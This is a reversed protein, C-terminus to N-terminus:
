PKGSNTAMMLPIAALAAVVILVLFVIGIATDVRSNV